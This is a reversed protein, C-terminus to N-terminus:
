AKLNGTILIYTYICIYMVKHTFYPTFEAHSFRSLITCVHVHVHLSCLCLHATYGHLSIEILTKTTWLKLVM